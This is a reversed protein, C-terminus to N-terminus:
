GGRTVCFSLRARGVRYFWIGGVRRAGPNLTIFADQLAMALLYIIGSALAWLELFSVYTAVTHM